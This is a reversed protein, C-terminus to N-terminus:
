ILSLGIATSMAVMLGLHWSPQVPLCVSINKSPLHAVLYILTAM